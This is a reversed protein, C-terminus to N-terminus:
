KNPHPYTEILKDDFYFEFQADIKGKLPINISKGDANHVKDYVTERADDQIREVRIEIEEGDQPLTLNINFPIEKDKDPEEPEEPGSSIYIDVVTNTELETGPEISQWMVVGKAYEDSPQEVKKGRVLQYAKLTNEAEREKSGVLKPMLITKKEPGKSVVVNVSSGEKVESYPEPSQSIIVNPEVTDNNLYDVLGDELGYQSLIAEFESIDKNILSPVKVYNGGKSITVEITYGKKVKQGQEPKQFVVDGEDFESDYVEKGVKFELGLKKVEKEALEQNMGILGPVSIESTIFLDKLKYFGLAISGTVIFALLM